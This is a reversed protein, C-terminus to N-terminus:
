WRGGKIRWRIINGTHITFLSLMIVLWGKVKHLNVTFKGTRPHLGQVQNTYVSVM